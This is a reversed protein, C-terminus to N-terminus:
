RPWLERLERAYQKVIEHTIKHEPRIRLLVPLRTHRLIIRESQANTVGNFIIGEVPIKRNQLCEWTLLTHNISGLYLNSVLIVKADFRAALDIIFQSDNLPVLCGGAGEIVLNDNHTDPVAFGEVDLTAGEASAAAHPSAPTKLFVGERHIKTDANTVLSAITESDRPAGCQVPKWYDAGLAECLIASALTKGSDTHIATVFYKM